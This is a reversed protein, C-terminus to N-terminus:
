GAPNPIAFFSRTSSQYYEIKRLKFRGDWPEMVWVYPTEELEYYGIVNIHSKGGITYGIYLCDNGSGVNNKLWEYTLKSTIFPDWVFGKWRLKEESPDSVDEVQAMDLLISKLGGTPMGGQLPGDASNSLSGYLATIRAQELRPRGRGCHKAWYSLCAAWCSMDHHQKVANNWGLSTGIDVQYPSGPIAAPANGWILGDGKPAPKGALRSDMQALTKPGVKGDPTEGPLSVKQFAKVAQDTESGFIGDPSGTKQTSVPLPHGLQILAKQLTKVPEGQEGLKITQGAAAEQFRPHTFWNSQFAM